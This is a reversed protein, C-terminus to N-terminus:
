VALRLEFWLAWRLMNLRHKLGSMHWRLSRLLRRFPKNRYPDLLELLRKVEEVSLEGTNTASV